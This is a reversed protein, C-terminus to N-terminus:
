AREAFTDPELRWSCDLLITLSQTDPQGHPDYKGGDRSQNHWYTLVGREDTDNSKQCRNLRREVATLHHEIKALGIANLRICGEMTKSSDRRVVPRGARPRSGGASAALERKNGDWQHEAPWAIWGDSQEFILKKSSKGIKIESRRKPATQVLLRTKTSVSFVWASNYMLLPVQLFGIAM